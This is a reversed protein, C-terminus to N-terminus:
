PNSGPFSAQTPEERKATWIIAPGPQIAQRRAPERMDIWREGPTGANVRVLYTDLQQPFAIDSVFPGNGRVMAVDCVVGVRRLLWVLVVARDRPIAGGRDLIPQLHDPILWLRAAPIDVRELRRDVWAIASDVRAAPNSTAAMIARARETLEPSEEHLVTRWFLSRPRVIDDWENRFGFYLAPAGATDPPGTVLLRSVIGSVVPASPPLHGLLWVAEFSTGHAIQQPEPLAGLRWSLLPLAMPFRISVEAEVISDGEAFHEEGIYYQLPLIGTESGGYQIEIVDGPHPDPVAVVYDAIGPYGKPGAAGCPETRISEAPIPEMAGSKRHLRAQVIEIQEVEPRYTWRIKLQGPPRAPGVVQFIHNETVTGASSLDIHRQTALIIGSCTPPLKQPRNLLIANQEAPDYAFSRQIAGLSAASVIGIFLACRLGPMGPKGPTGRRGTTGKSGTM